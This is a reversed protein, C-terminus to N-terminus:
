QHRGHGVDGEEGRVAGVAAWSQEATGVDDCGVRLVDSLSRLLASGMLFEQLGFLFTLNYTAFLWSFQIYPNYHSKSALTLSESMYPGACSPTYLMINLKLNAYVLKLM